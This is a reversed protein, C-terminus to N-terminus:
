LSSITIGGSVTARLNKFSVSQNMNIRKDAVGAPALIKLELQLGSFDPIVTGEKAKIVIELPSIVPNGSCGCAITLGPTVSVDEYPELSEKGDEDTQKVLLKVSSLELSLPIENSVETCIRAEQVKYQGLPVDLNEIDFSLAAPFDDKMYLYGKYQYELSFSGFGNLPDKEMISAPLHLVTNEVKFQTFNDGDTKEVRLVENATSAEVPVKSFEETTLTNDEEGLITLKGSVSVGETLPNNAKLTFVQPSVAFGMTALMGAYTDIEGSYDPLTFDAAVAPDPLAMSIMAVFSSSVSGNAQCVLYGQEDEQIFSKIMDPLGNSLFQKPSIPGIDGLPLSVQDTFLTIEKDIGRSTDYERHQCASFALLLLLIFFRNHM